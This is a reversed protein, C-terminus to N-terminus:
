FLKEREQEEVERFRPDLRILNIIKYYKANSQIGKEELM